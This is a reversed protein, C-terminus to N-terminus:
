NLLTEFYKFKAPRDQKIVDYYIDDCAFCIKVSYYNGSMRTEIEKLKQRKQYEVFSNEYDNSTYKPKNIFNNQYLSGLLFGFVLIAAAYYLKLNRKKRRKRQLREWSSDKNWDSLLKGSEIQEIKEKFVNDIKNNPM